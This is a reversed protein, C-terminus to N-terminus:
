DYIFDLEDSTVTINKSQNNRNKDSDNSYSSNKTSNFSNNSNLNPQEKIPPNMSLAKSLSMAGCKICVCFAGFKGKKIDLWEGCVCKLDLSNTKHNLCVPVGQANEVTATKGCFPCKDIKSVGYVKKFRM